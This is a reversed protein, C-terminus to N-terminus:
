AAQSRRYTRGTVGNPTDQKYFGRGVGWKEKQAAVRYRRQVELETQGM